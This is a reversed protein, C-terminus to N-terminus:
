SVKFFFSNLSLIESFTIAKSKNWLWFWSNSTIDRAFATWAWLMFLLPAQLCVTYDSLTHSKSLIASPNFPAKADPKYRKEKGPLQLLHKPQLWGSSCSAWHNMGAAWPQQSCCVLLQQVKHFNNQELTFGTTNIVGAFVRQLIVWRWEHYFLVFLLFWWKPLSASM